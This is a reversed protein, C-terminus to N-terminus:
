NLIGEQRDDEVPTDAVTRQRSAADDEAGGVEAGLADAVAQLQM